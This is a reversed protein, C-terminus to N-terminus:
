GACTPRSACRRGPPISRPPRWRLGNFYELTLFGPRAFLPPLTHVVRADVHFVIDLMDELMGHIPKIVSHISQGCAHCHQGADARRLPATCDRM